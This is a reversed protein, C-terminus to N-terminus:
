VRAQRPVARFVQGVLAAVFRNLGGQPRLWVALDHLVEEFQSAHGAVEIGDVVEFDGLCFDDGARGLILSQLRLHVAYLDQVERDPSIPAPCAVLKIGHFVHRM